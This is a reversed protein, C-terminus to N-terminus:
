KAFRIIVEVRRNKKSLSGVGEIPITSGYGTVSFFQEPVQYKLLYSLVELARATSLEWNNHPYIEKYFPSSDTHGGIEIKDINIKERYCNLLLKSFNSLINNANSKLHYEGKEFLLSEDFSIALSLTTDKIVIQKNALEEHLQQEFSKKFKEKAAKIQKLTAEGKQVYSIFMLAIFLAFVLDLLAIWYKQEQKYVTSNQKM